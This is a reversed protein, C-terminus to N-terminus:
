STFLLCHPEIIPTLCPATSPMTSAGLQAATNGRYVLMKALTDTLRSSQSRGHPHVGLLPCSMFRQLFFIPISLSCLLRIRVGICFGPQHVPAYFVNSSLLAKSFAGDVLPRSLLGVASRHWFLLFDLLGM